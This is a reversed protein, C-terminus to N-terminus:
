MEFSPTSITHQMDRCMKSFTAELVHTNELSDKSIYEIHGYKNDESRLSLIVKDSYPDEHLPVMDLKINFIVNELVVKEPITRRLNELNM